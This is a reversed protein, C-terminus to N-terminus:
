TPQARKRLRNQEKLHTVLRSPVDDADGSLPGMGDLLVLRDVSDPYAGAVLCGIAAGMSHGMIRFREVELQAAIDMVYRVWDVFHYEADPSIHDSHGHGPMDVSILRVDPLLPALTQFTNANDLWGHLALVPMGDPPGWLRAALRLGHSYFTTNESM